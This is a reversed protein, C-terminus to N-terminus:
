QVTILNATSLRVLSAIFKWTGVVTTATQYALSGNVGGNCAAEYSVYLAVGGSVVVGYLVTGTAMTITTTAGIIATTTSAITTNVKAVAAWSAPGTPYTSGAARFVLRYISGVGGTFAVSGTSLIIADTTANVASDDAAIWLNGNGEPVPIMTPHYTYLPDKFEITYHLMLIGATLSSDCTAYCQVEEQIADDLDTDILADVVCWDSSCEVELTTEKWLPCAVANGQSLARSLFTTAAGNLFPEKVTRTSCMVLQGQTSTPVAPIYQIVAKTFRFKEYARALSGLMANQFYAPNLLVSAAPEYNTSVFTTVSGAFDAGQIVAKTGTRTVSPKTMRLTFGVAAPVSTQQLNGKVPQSRLNTQKQNTMNSNFIPSIKNRPLLSSTKVALAAISRKVGKLM